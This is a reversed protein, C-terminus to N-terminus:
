RYEEIRPYRRRLQEYLEPWGRKLHTIRGFDLGNGDLISGVRQKDPPVGLNSLKDYIPNLPVNYRLFLSSVNMSTWNWLPACMMTDLSKYYTLGRTPNLLASRGSSEDARVGWYVSRGIGEAAELAPLHIKAKRYSSPAINKSDKFHTFFAGDDLIKELSPSQIVHLPLDYKTAIDQVYTENEPYDLDSAFYVLPISLGLEKILIAVATSDKGGSFSLYGPYTTMKPKKEVQNQYHDLIMKLASQEKSKNLKLQSFVTAEDLGNM